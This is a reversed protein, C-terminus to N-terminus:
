YGLLFAESDSLWNKSSTPRSTPTAAHRDVNSGIFDNTVSPVGCNVPVSSADCDHLYAKNFEIILKCSFFAHEQLDCVTLGVDLCEEM